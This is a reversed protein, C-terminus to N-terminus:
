VRESTILKIVATPPTRKVQINTMLNGNDAKPRSIRKCNWCNDRQASIMEPFPLFNNLALRILITFMHQTFDVRKNLM